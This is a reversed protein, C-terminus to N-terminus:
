PEANLIVISPSSYDQCKDKRGLHRYAHKRWHAHVQPPREGEDGTEPEYENVDDYEDTEGESDDEHVTVTDAGQGSCITETETEENDSFCHQLPTEINANITISQSRFLM